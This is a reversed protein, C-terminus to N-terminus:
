AEEAVTLLPHEFQVAFQKAIATKTMAVEKTYLGIQTKGGKGSGHIISALIIAEELPKDFVVHILEVVFEIPTFDDNHMIVRWKNPTKFKQRTQVATESNTM